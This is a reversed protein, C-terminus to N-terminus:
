HPVKVGREAGTRAIIESVQKANKALWDDFEIIIDPAKGSSLLYSGATHPLAPDYILAGSTKFITDAAGLAVAVNVYAGDIRGAHVQRLLQEFNPNEKLEVKGTKIKDLWAYPTFGAVTGISAVADTTLGANGSRIVTGDIFAIVPKSYAISRGERASAQWTPSDPFKLDVGGHIMEALLRKVPLARYTLHHGKAKAFADLVSRAAGVFQGDRIGYVPSYDIAEVGVVLDRALADGAPAILTAWLASLIVSRARMAVKWDLKVIGSHVM